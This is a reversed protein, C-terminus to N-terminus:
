RKADPWPMIPVSSISNKPSGDILKDSYVLYILENRKRDAFRVLHITKFFLSAKESFVEEGHESVLSAVDVSIPGVQRCAVSFESVDTAFGVSALVGGKRARSLDCAVGPVKPDDFAEVSIYDSGTVHWSTNVNGIDEARATPGCLATAALALLTALATTAPRRVITNSM